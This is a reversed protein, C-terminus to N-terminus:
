VSDRPLFIDFVKFSHLNNQISLSRVCGLRLSTAKSYQIMNCSCLSITYICQVNKVQSALFYEGDHSQTAGMTAERNFRLHVCVHSAAASTRMTELTGLIMQGACARQLRTCPTGPTGHWTQWISFFAGFVSHVSFFVRCSKIPFSQMLVSCWLGKSWQSLFLQSQRYLGFDVMGCFVFIQIWGTLPM